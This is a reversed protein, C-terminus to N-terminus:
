VLVLCSVLVWVSVLDGVWLLCCLAFCFCVRLGLAVVVFPLSCLFCFAVLIFTFWWFVFHGVSNFEISIFVCYLLCSGVVRLCVCWHFM